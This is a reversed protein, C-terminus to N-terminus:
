NVSLHPTRLHALLEGASDFQQKCSLCLFGVKVLVRGYFRVRRPPNVPMDFEIWGEDPDASTFLGTVDVGDCLVRHGPIRQLEQARVVM